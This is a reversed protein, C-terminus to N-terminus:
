IGLIHNAGWLYMANTSYSEKSWDATLTLSSTPFMVIESFGALKTQWPNRNDDLDFSSVTEHFYTMFGFLANHYAQTSTFHLEHDESSTWTFGTLGFYRIEV